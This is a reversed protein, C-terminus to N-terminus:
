RTSVDTQTKRQDLPFLSTYQGFDIEPYVTSGFTSHRAFSFPRSVTEVSLFHVFSPFLANTLTIKTSARCRERTSSSRHFAAVRSRRLKSASDRRTNVRRPLTAIERIFKNFPPFCLFSFFSLSLSLSVVCIGSAAYIHAHIHRPVDVCKGIVEFVGLTSREVRRNAQGAGVGGGGGREGGQDCGKNRKTGRSEIAARCSFVRYFSLKIKGNTQHDDCHQAAGRTCTNEM